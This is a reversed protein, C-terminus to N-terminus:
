VILILTRWSPVMIGAKPPNHQMTLSPTLQRLFRMQGVFQATTAGKMVGEEVKEPLLVM